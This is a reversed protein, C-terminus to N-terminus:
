LETDRSGNDGDNYPRPTATLQRRVRESEEGDCYWLAWRCAAGNTLPLPAGGSSVVDCQTLSADM